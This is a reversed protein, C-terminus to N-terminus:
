AKVSSIMFGELTKLFCSKSLNSFWMKEKKRKSKCFVAMIERPIIKSLLYFNNRSISRSTIPKTEISSHIKIPRSHGRKVLDEILIVILSM